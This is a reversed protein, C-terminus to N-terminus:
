NQKQSSKVLKSHYKQNNKVTKDAISVNKLCKEQNKQKSKEDKLPQQFFHHFNFNAWERQNPM